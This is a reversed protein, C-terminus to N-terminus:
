VMMLESYWAEKLAGWFHWYAAHTLVLHYHEIFASPLKFTFSGRTGAPHHFLMRLTKNSHVFEILVFFQVSYHVFESRNQITAISVIVGSIHKLYIVTKQLSSKILIKKKINLCLCYYPLSKAHIPM